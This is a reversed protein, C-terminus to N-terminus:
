RYPQSRARDYRSEADPREGPVVTCREPTPAGPRRNKRGDPPLRPVIGQCGVTGGPGHERDTPRGALHDVHLKVHQGKLARVCIGTGAPECGAGAAQYLRERAEAELGMEPEDAVGLKRAVLAVARQVEVAPGLPHAAVMRAAHVVALPPLVVLIGLRQRRKEQVLHQQRGDALALVRDDHGFFPVRHVGHQVPIRSRTVIRQFAFLVKPNSRM